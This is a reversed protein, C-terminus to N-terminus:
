RGCPFHWFMWSLDMASSVNWASIDGNFHSATFMHSINKVNSVDWQSIDGNFFHNPYSFVGSLDDLGSVDIFNLDCNPGDKKITESILRMLHKRNEAIIKSHETDAM